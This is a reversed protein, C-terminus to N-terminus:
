EIAVFHFTAGMYRAESLQVMNTDMAGVLDARTLRLLGARHVKILRDKFEELPVGWRGHEYVSAIFARDEYFKATAPMRAIRKVLAAFGEDSLTDAWAAKAGKAKAPAPLAKRSRKAAFAKEVTARKETRERMVDHAIGKANPLLKRSAAVLISDFANLSSARPVKLALLRDLRAILIDFHRVSRQADRGVKVMERRKQQLQKKRARAGRRTEQQAQSYRVAQLRARAKKKTTKKM